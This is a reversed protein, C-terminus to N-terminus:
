VLQRSVMDRFLGPQKMLNEYSGVQRICGRELVVIRDAGVITSLRQAIVIRTVNLKSLSDTVISQTRNDLASTAEDFVLIRPQKILARAIMLRQRQGTSITAAGEAIYTEMGMPMARIDDDFGAMAAVRWADASTVDPCNGVINQFISGPMIQSNQMVVGLQQRVAQIDLSELDKNDYSVIGESPREFGMLLRFLTSKGAGSPGVIAVFEGPYIDLSVDDVIRKGRPEYEFSVHDLTVRGTLTGPSQKATNIELEADLIPQARRYLPVVAMSNGVAATMGLVGSFFQTFAANFAIFDGIGISGLVSAITIFLAMASVTPIVTNFVTLANDLGQAKLNLRNQESYAAAWVSFARPEASAVRLKNVGGIIQLVLSTLKGQCDALRRQWRLQWLNLGLAVLLAVIVIVLGVLSLQWSYWLMLVFNLSAFLGNLIAALTVSTLTSNITNIGMARNALDGASYNRFFGAPLRMLRDWLAGQLASDLHGSVRVMMIAQVLGFAGSSLTMAMLLFTYQSLQDLAANPIIDAMISSTILPTLLGIIGIALGVLMVTWVDSNRGKLGFKLLEKGSLSVEPFPRSLFVGRDELSELVDADVQWRQMTQPDCATYGSRGTPQMVMPAGDSRRFALFTGVDKKWWQDDLMVRRWLLGASQLIRSVRVTVLDDKPPLNIPERFAIHQDSAVMAIARVLADDSRSHEGGGKSRHYLVSQFARSASAEADVNAKRRADIRNLADLLARQDHALHTASVADVLAHFSKIPSGELDQDVSISSEDGLTFWIDSTFPFAESHKTLAVQTRGALLAEGEFVRLWHLREGGCIPTPWKANTQAGPPVSWATAPKGEECALRALRRVWVAWQPSQPVALIADEIETVRTDPTVVVLWTVDPNGVTTFIEGVELRLVHRRIGSYPLSDAVLFLDVAGAMIQWARFVATSLQFGHAENADVSPEITASM